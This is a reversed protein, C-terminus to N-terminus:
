GARCEKLIALANNRCLEIARPKGFDKKLIDYCEKMCFRRSKLNHADSSILDLCGLRLVKRLWQRTFFGGNVVTSANVQTVVQYDRYIEEVYDLKRLCAYREIHAFIPQYGISGLTRAAQKLRDYPADPSFEVLVYRSDGISPIAGEDLLRPADETYFIECGRYLKLKYEQEECWAKAKEFHDLFREMQFAHRGPTAHPTAVIREAGNKYALDLMKKMDDLTQAGDDIGYIFHHHMDVFM